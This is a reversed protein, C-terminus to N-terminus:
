GIAKDLQNMAWYASSLASFVSGRLKLSGSGIRLASELVTIASHYLGASLLEQFIIKKFM